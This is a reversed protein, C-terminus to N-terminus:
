SHRRKLGVVTEVVDDRKWGLSNFVVSSEKGM